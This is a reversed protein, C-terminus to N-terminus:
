QKPGYCEGSAKQPEVSYVPLSLSAMQDYSVQEVSYNPSQVQTDQHGTLMYDQSKHM